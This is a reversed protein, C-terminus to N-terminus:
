GKELNSYRKLNNFLVDGQSFEQFGYERMKIGVEKSAVYFSQQFKGFSLEINGYISFKEEGECVFGIGTEYIKLLQFLQKERLTLVTGILLPILFVWLGNLLFKVHSEIGLDGQINLLTERVIPLKFIILIILYVCWGIVIKKIKGKKSYDTQLDHTSILKKEEMNMSKEEDFLSDYAKLYCAMLGGFDKIEEIVYKEGQYDVANGVRYQEHFRKRNVPLGGPGVIEMQLSGDSNRKFKSKYKAKSANYYIAIILIMLLVIFILLVITFFLDEGFWDMNRLIEVEIGGKDLIDCNYCEAIYM